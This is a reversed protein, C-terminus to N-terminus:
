GRLFYYIGTKLYYMGNYDFVADDDDDFAVPQLLVKIVHLTYNLEQLARKFNFQLDRLPM